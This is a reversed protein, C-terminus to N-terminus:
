ATAEKTMESASYGGLITLWVEEHPNQFIPLVCKNLAEESRYVRMESGNRYRDFGPLFCGDTSEKVNGKHFRIGTYLPVDILIPLQIGFRGSFTFDVRYRGRPIATKGYIKQRRIADELIYCRYEGNVYFSGLTCTDTFEHRALTLEIM